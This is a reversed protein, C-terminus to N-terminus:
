RTLWQDICKAHFTHGCPLEKLVDGEKMPILCVSCEVPVFTLEVGEGARASPFPDIQKSEKARCMHTPLNNIAQLVAGDHGSVARRFAEARAHAAVRTRARRRRHSLFVLLAAVLLVPVIIAPM